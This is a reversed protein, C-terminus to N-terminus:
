SRGRGRSRSSRTGSAPPPRRPREGVVAHRLQTRTRLRSVSSIVSVGARRGTRRSRGRGSCPARGRGARGRRPPSGRSPPLSSALRVDLADERGAVDDVVGVALGHGRGPAPRHGGEVGLAPERRAFPVRAGRRGRRARFGFLGPDLRALEYGRGSPRTSRGARGSRPPAAPVRDRVLDVVARELVQQPRRPVVVLGARPELAVIVVDEADEEDRDADALLIADEVLLDVQDRGALLEYRGCSARAFARREVEACRLLRDRLLRARPGAHHDVPEDVQDGLVEEVEHVRDVVLDVLELVSDLAPGGRLDPRADRRQPVVQQVHPARTAGVRSATRRTTSLRISMPSPRRRAAAM